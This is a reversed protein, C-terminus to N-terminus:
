RKLFKGVLAIIEHTFLFIYIYHLFVSFSVAEPVCVQLM